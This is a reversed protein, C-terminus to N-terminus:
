QCTCVDDFLAADKLKSSLRTSGARFKLSAKGKEEAVHVSAVVSRDDQRHRLAFGGSTATSEGMGTRRFGGAGCASDACSFFEYLGDTTRWRVFEGSTDDQVCADFYKLSFSGTATNGAADTATCTVTSDGIPFEDGAPPDCSFVVGPCNDSTLPAMYNVVLPVGPNTGVITLNDSVTISPPQTDLVTVNFGCSDGSTANCTVPTTGLPFASGSAPACSITGCTGPPVFIPLPDSYNVVAGCLNPGSSITINNPCAISFCIAGAPAPPLLLVGALSLLRLAAGPISTM